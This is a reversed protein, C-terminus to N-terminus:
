HLTEVTESVRFGCVSQQLYTTTTARIKWSTYSIPSKYSSTLKTTAFSQQRRSSANSCYTNNYILRHRFIFCKDYSDAWRDGAKRTFVRNFACRLVSFHPWKERQLGSTNPDLGTFLHSKLTLSTKFLDRIDAARPCLKYANQM